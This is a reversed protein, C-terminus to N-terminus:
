YFAGLYEMKLPKAMFVEYRIFMFKDITQLSNGVGKFVEQHPNLCCGM